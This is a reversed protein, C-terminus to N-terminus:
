GVDWVHLQVTGPRFSSMVRMVLSEVLAEARARSDHTSAVQLHSEDLLPVAVPFGPEMADLRGTGITWLSPVGGTGDLKAVHGRWPEPERGTGSRGRPRSGARGASSGALASGTRRSGAPPTPPPPPWWRRSGTPAAGWGSASPPWATPACASSSM